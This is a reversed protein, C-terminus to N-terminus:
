GQPTLVHVVLDQYTWNSMVIERFPHHKPITVVSEVAAFPICRQRLCDRVRCPRAEEISILWDVSKDRLACLLQLYM